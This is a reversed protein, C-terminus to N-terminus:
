GLDFSILVFTLTNNFFHLIIPVYLSRSYFRSYALVLGLFVIAVMISWDYQLHVVAFLVSSLLAAGHMGLPTRNLADLLIGRFLLEEFVPAMICVAVFLWSYHTTNNWIREMFDSQFLDFQQGIFELGLVLVVVAALWILISRIAPTHLGLQLKFDNGKWRKTLFLILAIGFLGSAIGAIGIADGNYAIQEINAEFDDNLGGSKIQPWFGYVMAIVAQVGSYTLFIGFAILIGGGPSMTVRRESQQTLDEM